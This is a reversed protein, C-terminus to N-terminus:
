KLKTEPLKSQGHALMWESTQLWAFALKQMVSAQASLQSTFDTTNNDAYKYLSPGAGLRYVYMLSDNMCALKDDASFVIYPRDNKRLDIGFTNNVYKPLVLSTVTPFVDAQLGLKSVAMPSTYGPAFILFPIRHNSFVVDYANHGMHEGHDAVFVFVSNGYWSQQSAYELFRRLSWDAYAVIAQEDAEHKRVFGAEPPIVMPDHDSGTMFAAFFPKQKAALRNLEGISYRFMFEDPVGLTSKVEAAPYNKQGIIHEFSNSSLFGSMNDFLEDHTTFFATQYGRQALVNSFGAMPPVSILDMTHRHMIAPHAFLTTYIGNYTHIGASYINDFSWCQAALSDLFPTLQATNGFRGMKATTMSEMIVLVVNRGQLPAESTQYRAIPSTQALTPDAQLLTSMSSLAERDDMKHFHRNEPQMDDLVSRMLSFVPNLGLQNIFANNSFFATGPIIPTKQATRGRIGLFTMGWLLLVFPLLKPLYRGPIPEFKENTFLRHQKMVRRLLVVYFGTVLLFVFFFVLFRPEEIVMKFGFGASHSWNFITDNLRNFFYNFFPVDVSCLFFSGVFLAGTYTYLVGLLWRRVTGALFILSLVIVPLGLIYCAIVTDFRFGMIMAKGLLEWKDGEIEQVLNWNTLILLLRFFTFFLMGLLYVKILSKLHGLSRRKIPM